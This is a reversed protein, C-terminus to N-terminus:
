LLRANRHASHTVSPVSLLQTHRQATKLEEQLWKRVARRAPIDRLVWADNHNRFGLPQYSFRAQIGTSEIYRRTEEVGEGEHCIFSARGNIRELRTRAAPPDSGPYSWLRVGDYHSYPIFALWLAAIEDDHLGLYGCAIAGRSFGTLVLEAPNGGWQECVRRVERKCYAVTAEVDGWWQRQNRQGDASVYPLCLWIFGKGGSIGYGLKSGEVEGTSVDGWANRYNGNGAYEVLVPYRKGAVWDEPLYLVHHVDTGAYEPPRVRVRVGPRPEGGEIPPVVLDPEVSRIDAVSVCQATEGVAIPGCFSAFLTALFLGQIFSTKHKMLM